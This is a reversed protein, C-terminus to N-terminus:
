EGIRDSINFHKGENLRYDGEETINPIEPGAISNPLQNEVVQGKVVKYKKKNDPSIKISKSESSQKSIGLGHKKNDGRNRKPLFSLIIRADERTIKGDNDFDYSCLNLKLM